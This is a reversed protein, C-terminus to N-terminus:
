GRLRFGWGQGRFGLIKFYGKIDKLAHGICIRARQGMHM